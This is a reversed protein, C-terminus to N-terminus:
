GSFDTETDTVFWQGNEKQLYFTWNDTSTPSTVNGGVTSSAWTTARLHVTATDPGVTTEGFVIDKAGGDLAFADGSVEADVADSFQKTRMALLPGRYHSNAKAAADAHLRAADTALIVTNPADPIGIRHELILTEAAVARVAAVSPDAAATGVVWIAGVVVVVVAGAVVSRFLHRPPRTVEIM